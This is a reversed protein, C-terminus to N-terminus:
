DDFEEGGCVSDLTIGLVREVFEGDEGRLLEKLKGRADKLHKDCVRINNIGKEFFSLANELTLDDDELRDIIHELERISEEFSQEKNPQDKKM